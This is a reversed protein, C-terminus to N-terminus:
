KSTWERVDVRNQMRDRVLPDHTIIVLASTQAECVTLLLDILESSTNADLGSTPEDALLVQPRRILARCVSVRQREGQSLRHPRRSEFGELGVACLLEQAQQHAHEPIRTGSVRYPLLINQTVDLYDVLPYDQFILGTNELRHQRREAESAATLDTGSVTLQGSQASLIGSLLNFLTTKGCGSPGTLAVTEGSGVEWHGIQLNFPSDPYRFGLNTAQIVAM